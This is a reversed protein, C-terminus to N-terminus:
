VNGRQVSMFYNPSGKEELVKLFAKVVKPDFQTGSCKKLEEIALEKGPTRRYPREATMSDFTDAVSLIRAQLPIEEGKLGDPYGKGDYREHHGKIWPIIDRLQSIPSLVDAGKVPHRKLMEYEEDTLKGPKDLVGDYTGIKGIDHLLGAIKLKELDDESFGMEKGIKVAYETVRESHGKTWPSKAEIAAALSMLAGIFLDHLEVDAKKRETIDKMIHLSYLYRGDVDKILYFGTNYFRGTDPLSFEEEGEEQMKMGKMCRHMPGEMRPFVEYYPKGVIEQFSMGAAETYARNCRIIKLEMDHLFLPDSIADFTEEWEKKAKEISAEAQRRMLINKNAKFLTASIAALFGFMLITPIISSRFVVRGLMQSRQTIDYYIEFSGVFRGDVMIPAYTEIVDASVIRNELTQTNKKVIMTYANGKAVIEHFYSKNNIKGIDESFTSYIIKGSNSFVKLRELKFKEKIKEAEEAFDVPKKLENNSVVMPSLLNALRMAEDETNEILLRSFSPFIFQINVLPYIIAIACSLIFIYKLTKDYFIM